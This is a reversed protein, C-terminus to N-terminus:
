RIDDEDISTVHFGKRRQEKLFDIVGPPLERPKRTELRKARQVEQWRYESAEASLFFRESIEEASACEKAFVTPALLLAALQRAEREDRREAAGCIKGQTPHRRFRPGNHGLAIHCVEEMVVFRAKPNWDKAQQYISERVLITNTSSNAEAEAHPLREDPVRILKLGPFIEPFGNETVEIVDFTGVAELRLCHRIRGAIEELEDINRPTKMM